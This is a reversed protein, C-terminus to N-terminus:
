FFWRPVRKCYNKYEEGFQSSLFKEEAPVVFIHLYTWLSTAGLALWTTDFAVCGATPIAVLAVYMMNRSSAFPGTDAIRKVSSFNATTDAKKLAEMCANKTKKAWVLLTTAIGARLAVTITADTESGYYNTTVGPFFQLRNGSGYWGMLSVGSFLVMAFPPFIPIDGGILGIRLHPPKSPDLPPSYIASRLRQVIMNNGM